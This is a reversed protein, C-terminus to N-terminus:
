AIARCALTVTAPKRGIYGVLYTSVHIYNAPSDTGHIGM